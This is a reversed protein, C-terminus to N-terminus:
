VLCVARWPTARDTIEAGIMPTIGYERCAALFPWVGYLNDTDTLAIQEYGLAKARACVEKPSATGWMLSYNSRLTLPIM